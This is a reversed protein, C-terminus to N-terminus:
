FPFFTLVQVLTAVSSLSDRAHERQVVGPLESVPESEPEESRKETDKAETAVGIIWSTSKQPHLMMGIQQAFVSAEAQALLSVGETLALLSVCLEALRMSSFTVHLHVTIAALNADKEKLHQYRLVWRHNCVRLDFPCGLLHRLRPRCQYRTSSWGSQANSTKLVKREPPREADPVERDRRM